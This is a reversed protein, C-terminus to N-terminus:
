GPLTEHDRIRTASSPVTVPHALRAAPRRAALEIEGDAEVPRQDALRQVVLFRGDGVLAEGLRAAGGEVAGLHLAPGQDPDEVEPWISPGSTALTAMEDTLSSFAIAL